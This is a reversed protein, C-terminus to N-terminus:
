VVLYVQLDKVIFYGDPGNLSAYRDPTHSWTFSFLHSSGNKLDGSFRLDEMGIQVANANGTRGSIHHQNLPNYPLKVLKKQPSELIFAFTASNRYERGNPEALPDAVYAGFINGKDTTVIVLTPKQGSCIRTFDTVLSPDPPFHYLLKFTRGPLWSNIQDVYPKPLNIGATYTITEPKSIKKTKPTVDTGAPVSVATLVSGELVDVTQNTRPDLKFSQSTGEVTVSITVDSSNQLIVRVSPVTAEYNVTGPGEIKKRSPSVESGPPSSVANLVTNHPFTFSKSSGKALDITQSTGEVSIKIDFKANNVLDVAHSQVPPPPATIMYLVNSQTVIVFLTSTGTPDSANTFNM